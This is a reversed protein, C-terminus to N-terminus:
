PLSTIAPSTAPAVLYKAAETTAARLIALAATLAQEGNKTPNAAYTERLAIASSLWARANARVNDAAQTVQPLKALAARNDREWTVFTHLVNYSTTISVDADYLVKSTYAGNPALTGCASFLVMLLLPVLCSQLTKM